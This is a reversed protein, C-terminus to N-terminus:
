IYLVSHHLKQVTVPGYGHIQLTRNQLKNCCYNLVAFLQIQQLIGNRIDNKDYKNFFEM